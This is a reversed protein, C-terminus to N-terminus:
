HTIGELLFFTKGKPNALLVDIRLNKFYAGYRASVENPDQFHRVHSVYPFNPVTGFFRTGPRIRKIVDLDSEVHELFETCIVTDYDHDAFLTTAFADEVSFTYVPCLTKAYAIRSPSFDFGHYKSVGQDKLLVALQGSGCGIDLISNTPYHIIRDAIVSWLFFYSPQTYHTQRNENNEFSKDYWDASKEGAPEQVQYRGAGFMTKTANVILPPTLSKVIGAFQEKM